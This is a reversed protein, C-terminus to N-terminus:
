STLPPAGIAGTDPGPVAGTSLVMGLAREGEMGAQTEALWPQPPCFLFSGHAMQELSSHTQDPRKEPWAVWVGGQRLSSSSRM